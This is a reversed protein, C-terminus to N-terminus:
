LYCPYVTWVKKKNNVKVFSSSVDSDKWAGDGDEKKFPNGKSIINTAQFVVSAPTDKQFGIFADSTSFNPSYWNSVM